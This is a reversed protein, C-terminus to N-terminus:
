GTAKPIVVTFVYLVLGTSVLTFVVSFVIGWLAWKNLGSENSSNEM